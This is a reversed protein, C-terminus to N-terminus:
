LPLDKLIERINQIPSFMAIQIGLRHYSGWIVGIMEGTDSDMVPSGSDGPIVALGLYYEIGDDLPSQNPGLYLGRTKYVVPTGGYGYTVVYEGFEPLEQAMPITPLDKTNGKLIAIDDGAVDQDGLYIVDFLELSQDYFRIVQSGRHSICHAATIIVEQMLISGTCGGNVEVISKHVIPVKQHPFSMVPRNPGKFAVIGFLTLAMLTTLLPIGYKIM